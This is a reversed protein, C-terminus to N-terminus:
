NMVFRFLFQTCPSFLCEGDSIGISSAQDERNAIALRAFADRLGEAVHLQDSIAGM